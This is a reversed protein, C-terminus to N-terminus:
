NKRVSVNICHLSLDYFNQCSVVVPVVFMVIFNFGLFIKWSLPHNDYHCANPLQSQSNAPIKTPSGNPIENSIEDPMGVPIEGPVGVPIEVPLGRPDVDTENM